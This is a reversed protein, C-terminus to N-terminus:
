LRRNSLNDARNEALLSEAFRQFVVFEFRERTVFNMEVALELPHQGHQEPKLVELM